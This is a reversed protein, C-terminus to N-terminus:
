SGSAASCRPPAATASRRRGAGTPGQRLEDRRRARLDAARRGGGDFGLVRHHHGPLRRRAAPREARRGRDRLVATRHVPLQLAAHRDVVVQRRRRLHRARGPQDPGDTDPGDPDPQLSVNAMRQVPIHGPSDAYACGNSRGGNLEAGYTHAMARDLQYGVFSATASSTGRSRRVGEDDYGVTALGHEVTRDGTVNMIPSGYQLTNLQDYTAFSTGAYSAEYGLARDLETAHGISEHITLWLNSPHIVLDYDGAEVSPRRAERPALGPAPRARRRLRLRRRQPVEWGHGVPPALSACRTSRAPRRTAGTCRSTRSSGSGSSPSRPAPSTPTTSTRTCRCCRRRDRPRRRRRGAARPDLRRVARDERGPTRRVPRRRVGLGLHRGRPGARAGARRPSQDDQRGGPRRHGRDRRGRGGRVRDARRRLRLGVRRRPRGPRRLRPGRRGPRGRPRRRPGLLVPLPDARAPLRCPHGRLRPGAGARGAGLRESPLALFTEDIEAM